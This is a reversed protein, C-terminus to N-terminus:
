AVDRCVTSVYLKHISEFFWRNGVELVEDFCVKCISSRVTNPDPNYPAVYWGRIIVQEGYQRCEEAAKYIGNIVEISGQNIEDMARKSYKWIIHYIQAVSFNEILEIMTEELKRLIKLDKFIQESVYGERSFLELFYGMCEDVLIGKILQFSINEFSVNQKLFRIVEEETACNGFQNHVNIKFTRVGKKTDTLENEQNAKGSSEKKLLLITEGFIEMHFMKKLTLSYASRVTRYDEEESVEKLISGWILAQGFTVEMGSNGLVLKNHISM